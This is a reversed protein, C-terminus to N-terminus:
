RHDLVGPTIIAQGIAAARGGRRPQPADPMSSRLDAQSELLPGRPANAPPGDRRHMPAARSSRGADSVRRPTRFSRPVRAPGSGAAPDIAGSAAVGLAVVVPWQIVSYRKM